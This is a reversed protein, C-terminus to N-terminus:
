DKKFEWTEWIVWLTVKGHKKKDKVTCVMGWTYQALRLKRREVAATELLRQQQMAAKAPAGTHALSERTKLAKAFFCWRWLEPIGCWFLLGPSRPFYKGMKRQSIKSLKYMKGGKNLLLVPHNQIHIQIKYKNIKHFTLLQVPRCQQYRVEKAVRLPRVLVQPAKCLTSLNKEARSYCLENWLVLHM